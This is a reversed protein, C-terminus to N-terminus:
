PLKRDFRRDYVVAVAFRAVPPYPFLIVNTDTATMNPKTAVIRNDISTPYWAPRRRQFGVDSLMWATDAVM